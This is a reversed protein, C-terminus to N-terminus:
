SIHPVYCHVTLSVSLFPSFSVRKLSSRSDTKNTENHNFMCGFVAMVDDEVFGRPKLSDRIKKYDILFDGIVVFITPSCFFWWTLKSFFFLIWFWIILSEHNVLRGDTNDTIYESNIYKKYYAV